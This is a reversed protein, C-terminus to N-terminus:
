AVVEKKPATIKMAVFYLVCVLLVVGVVFHSEHKTAAVLAEPDLPNKGEALLKDGV